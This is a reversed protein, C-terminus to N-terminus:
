EASRHDHFGHKREVADTEEGELRDHARVKRDHLRDDHEYREGIDPEGQEGVDDVRPEVRADPHSSSLIRIIM